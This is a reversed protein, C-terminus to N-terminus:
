PCGGQFNANWSGVSVLQLRRSRLGFDNEHIVRAADLVPRRAFLSKKDIRPTSQLPSTVHKACRFGVIAPTRHPPPASLSFYFSRDMEPNDKEVLAKWYAARPLANQSTKRRRFRAIASAEVEVSKIFQLLQTCDSPVSFGSDKVSATGALKVWLNNRTMAGHASPNSEM